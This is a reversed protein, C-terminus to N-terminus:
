AQELFASFSGPALLSVRFAKSTQSPVGDGESKLPPQFTTVAQLRPKGETGLLKPNEFLCARERVCKIPNGLWSILQFIILFCCVLCIFPM